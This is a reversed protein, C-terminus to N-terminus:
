IKWRAGGHRSAQMVLGRALVSAEGGMSVHVGFPFSPVDISPRLERQLRDSRIWAGRTTPGVQPRIGGGADLGRAEGPTAAVPEVSFQRELVVLAEGSRFSANEM